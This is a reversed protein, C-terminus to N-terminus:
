KSIIQKIELIIIDTSKFEKGFNKLTILHDLADTILSMRLFNLKRLFLKLIVCRGM